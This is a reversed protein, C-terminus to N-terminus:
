PFSPQPVDIDFSALPEVHGPRLDVPFVRLTLHTLTAALAQPGFRTASGNIALYLTASMPLAGGLRSVESEVARATAEDSVLLFCQRTPIGLDPHFSVVMGSASVSGDEACAMPFGKRQPDYHGLSSSSPNWTALTREQDPLRQLYIPEGAELRVYRQSRAAKLREDIGPLEKAMRDKKVFVDTTTANSSLMSWKEDDSAPLDRFAMVMLRGMGPAAVDLPAYAALPLARDVPAAVPAPPLVPTPRPVPAVARGAEVAAVSGVRVLRSEPKGKQAPILLHDADIRQVEISHGAASLLLRNGDIKFSGSVHQPTDFTGDARFVFELGDAGRFDGEIPQEVGPRGCGSVLAVLVCLVAMGVRNM